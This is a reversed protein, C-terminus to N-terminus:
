LIEYRRWLEGYSNTCLGPALACGCYWTTKFGPELIQGRPNKSIESDSVSQRNALLQSFLPKVEGKALKQHVQQSWQNLASQYKKPTLSADNMKLFM